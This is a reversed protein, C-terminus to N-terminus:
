RKWLWLTDLCRFCFRPHRRGTRMPRPKYCLRVIENWYVFKCRGMEREPFRLHPRETIGTVHRRFKESGM